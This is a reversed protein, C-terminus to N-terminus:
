GRWARLEKILLKKKRILDDFCDKQQQLEDIQERLLEIRQKPTAMIPPDKLMAPTPLVGRHQIM